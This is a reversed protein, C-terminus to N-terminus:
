HVGQSQRASLLPSGATHFMPYDALRDAYKLLNFAEWYADHRDFEVGERAYPPAAERVIPDAEITPLHRVLANPHAWSRELDDYLQSEDLRTADERLMQNVWGLTTNLQLICDRCFCGSYLDFATM